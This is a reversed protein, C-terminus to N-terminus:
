PTVLWKQLGESQQQEGNQAFVWEAQVTRTVSASYDVLVQNRGHM